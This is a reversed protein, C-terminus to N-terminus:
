DSYIHQAAWTQSASPYAFPGAAIVVELGPDIHCGFSPHTGGLFLMHDLSVRLSLLELGGEGGKEHEAKPVSRRM